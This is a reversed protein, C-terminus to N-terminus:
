QQENPRLPIDTQEVSNQKYIVSNGSNTSVINSGTKYVQRLIMEIAQVKSKGNQLIM